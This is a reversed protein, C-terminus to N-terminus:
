GSLFVGFSPGGRRIWRISPDRNFWTLQRKAYRRTEQKIRRVAEELGYAKNLYAIIQRYGLGKMSSLEPSFGKGMLVRVEEVLGNDLMSDVRSEIRRYLDPRERRLGIVIARYPKEGFHHDLHYRSIPTGTQEYVEIARIIKPLDQPAIRRASEPDVGQLRGHLFQPGYREEEGRLHERLVWDARSGTCLGQLLLKVYLGTGGVVIPIRSRQHLRDIAVQAMMRFRGASFAEDPNVVNILHHIVQERDAPKPKATGIDMGRYVQRSDASIIESGLRQALEIAISSKGVATPGVLVILPKQMTM